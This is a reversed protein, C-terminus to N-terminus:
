KILKEYEDELKKIMIDMSNDSLTHSANDELIQLIKTDKITDKLVNKLDNVDGPKFLHGNVNDNILEPIGGIDSGIVPTSHTFSEYIVMPSNDYCISPVVILNAMNYFKSIEDNNVYGHFTIREDDKAMMKFEDLDYGKGVLHLHINDDPIQKFANILTDVGKHKGMSGIYMIDITTYDKLHHQTKKDIALPIKTSKTNNFFGNEHYKNIMFNSPAILLDVNDDLLKRQINIYQSCIFNPKKCLTNNARILNARPCILSFDHSEFVLPINLNSTVDFIAMSLGKYNNLHVIDVDEKKLIKTVKKKTKNNWLDFLHWLPKKIGNVQTQQYPQYLRTTNLQYVKIEDNDIIHQQNDASTTIVIVEHGRKKMAQAMKQVIIEAGGLIAPPYMNSIYCIKM